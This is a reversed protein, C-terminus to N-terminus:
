RGAGITAHRVAVIESGATLGGTRAFKVLAEFYPFPTKGNWDLRKSLLTIASDTTLFEVGTQTGEPDTGSVVLINGAGGANPLFVIQCYSSQRDNAYIPLEGKQPPRNEFYAQRSAPNFGYHFSMRNEVTEVWPNTRRSGLLIANGSTMNQLNFDRAFSLNVRSPGSRSSEGFSTGSLALIYRAANVSAMDTYHRKAALRAALQADPKSSLGPADLWLHPRIYESLPVPQGMLDQVLGLSSDTLVVTTVQGNGSLRAWFAKLAPAAVPRGVASSMSSLLM